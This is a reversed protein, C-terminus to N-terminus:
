CGAFECSQLSLFLFLFRGQNIPLVFHFGLTLIQSPDTGFPPPGCNIFGKELASSLNISIIPQVATSPSSTLFTPNTSFVTSGVCDILLGRESNNGATEIGDVDAADSFM